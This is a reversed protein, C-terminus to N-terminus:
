NSGSTAIAVVGAVAATGAVILVILGTGIAKSKGTKTGARAETPVANRLSLKAAAPTSAATVAAAAPQAVTMALMATGLIMKNM